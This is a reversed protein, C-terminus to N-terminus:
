AARLRFGDYFLGTRKVTRSVLTTEVATVPLAALTGSVLTYLEPLDRCFVTAMLNTPGTGAYVGHVAPHAALARGTEDLAAPPVSIWLDADVRYGLLRPDITAHTRLLGAADLAAVRRRVTSPPAGVREAVGSLPARADTRLAALITRDLPDPRHPDGDPPRTATPRDATLAATQDPTLLGARWATADAFTHLVAYATTQVVASTAPLEDFLLRDRNLDDAYMLATIEEGSSLVDVFWVDPRRALAAAIAGVKGRLVRMRLGLPYRHRTDSPAPLCVVRVVGADYMRTLRRTVTRESVGLVDAIRGPAARGDVQLAAVVLRDVPDLVTDPDSAELDM